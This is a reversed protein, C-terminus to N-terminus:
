EVEREILSTIIERYHWNLLKISRELNDLNERVEDILDFIEGLIMDAHKRMREPAVMM